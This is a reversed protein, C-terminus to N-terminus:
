RESELVSIAMLYAMRESAVKERLKAELLIEIQRNRNLIM